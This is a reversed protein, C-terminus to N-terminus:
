GPLLVMVLRGGCGGDRGCLIWWGVGLLLEISGGRLLRRAGLWRGGV